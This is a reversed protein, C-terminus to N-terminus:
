GKKILPTFAIMPEHNQVLSEKRVLVMKQLSSITEKKDSPCDLDWNNESSHDNKEQSTTSQGVHLYIKKTSGFAELDSAANPAALVYHSLLNGFIDKIMASPLAVVSGVVIAALAAAGLPITVTSFAITGPLTFYGILKSGESFDDEGEPLSMILTKSIRMPYFMFADTATYAEKIFGLIKKYTLNEM